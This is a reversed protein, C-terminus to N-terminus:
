DVAFVESYSSLGYCSLVMQEVLESAYGRAGSFSWLTAFNM